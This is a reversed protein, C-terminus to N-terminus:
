LQIELNDIYIIHDNETATDIIFKLYVETGSYNFDYSVREYNNSTNKITTEKVVAQTSVDVLQVKVEDNTYYSFKLDFSISNFSTFTEETHAYGLTSGNRRIALALNAKDEDGENGYSNSYNFRAQLLHWDFSYDNNAEVLTDETAYRGM